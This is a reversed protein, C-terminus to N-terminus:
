MKPVVTVQLSEVDPHPAKLSLRVRITLQGVPVGDIFCDRM